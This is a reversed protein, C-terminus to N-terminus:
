ITTKLSWEKDNSNVSYDCVRHPCLNDSNKQCAAKRVRRLAFSGMGRCASYEEQASSREYLMQENARGCRSYM